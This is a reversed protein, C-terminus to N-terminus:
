ELDAGTDGGTTGGVASSSYHNTATSTSNFLLGSPIAELATTVINVIPNVVYELATAHCKKAVTTSASFSHYLAFFVFYM